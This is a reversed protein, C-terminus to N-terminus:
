IKKEPSGPMLIVTQSGLPHWDPTAAMTRGDKGLKIHAAGPLLREDLPIKARPNHYVDLGEIWREEYSGEKVEHVFTKPALADPDHDLVTGRRIMSGKGHGFGAVVGMRAFKSITGSNSFVIASVNEAGPLDFFGSDIIKAEWKHQKVKRPTITPKGDKGPALDYDWGYLYVQLASRTFVMSGKSSFDEIAIAFPIGKAHDKKWYEKALKATLPGAFKIPMFERLYALKEADTNTPPIPKEAGAEDKSPNVTVAEITFSGALGKAVFDPAPKSRDLEFGLEVLTAFLYLEWMRSDFGTTQFQEIFNGDADRYWRMMPEIIRRAPVFHETQTLAVFGPNLKEQTVVPTLFDVVLPKKHGQHHQEKPAEAAKDLAASLEAYAARVGEHWGTMTTWRFQLQEDRAFVIGAYTGDSKDRVLLGLAKGSSHEYQALEESLLPAMYNRAYGGLANFRVETIAKM